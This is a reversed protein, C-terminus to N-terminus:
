QGNGALVIERITASQTSAVEGATGTLRLWQQPCSAPVAFRGSFTKPASDVNKLPLEVLPDPAGPCSVTWALRSGEGKADGAASFRITYSGPRLMLLQVALDARERGYYEVQLGQGRTREAIGAAGSALQWNFPAAGRPTEFRPDYIAKDEIGPGLGAFVRWLAHARRIEGKDVMRTILTQQWPLPGSASQATASRGAIRLILDANGTDAIKALIAQQLAPDKDLVRVLRSGTEPDRAMRALETTLLGAANPILRNLVMIESAAQELRGTRLYRDLLILRVTRSRPDRRKAENLLAEGRAGKGEAIAQLAALFFPQESLPADSLAQSALRMTADDLRAGPTRLQAMALMTRVRPHDPDIAAAAAPNTRILADVSSTKVVQYALFVAGAGAVAFRALKAATIRRGRRM